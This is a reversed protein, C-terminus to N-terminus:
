EVDVGKSLLKRSVFYLVLNFIFYLCMSIYIFQKVAEISPTETEFLQMLNPNILAILYLIGLMIVQTFNYSVIGIVISKIMKSGNSKHGLILGFIGFQMMEIIELLVIFVFSIILKISLDEGFMTKLSNFINRLVEIRNNGICLLFTCGVIVIFTITMSIIGSLVKSDYVNKRDVPLTHTLYSQDKYITINFRAWFRIMCNFLASFVGSIFIGILIKDIIVVINTKELTDVVRILGTLFLLVIYYVILLKNIWKLDYKLLKRLM